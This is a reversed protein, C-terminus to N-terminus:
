SVRVIRENLDGTHAIIKMHGYLIARAWHIPAALRETLVHDPAWPYEDNELFIRRVAASCFYAKENPKGPVWRAWRRNKKYVYWLNRLPYYNGEMAKCWVNISARWKELDVDTRTQRIEEDFVWSPRTIVFDGGKKLISQLYEKAPDLHSHPWRENYIFLEDGDKCFIADHDHQAGTVSRIRNGVVGRTRVHLCDGSDPMLMLAEPWNNQKRRVTM